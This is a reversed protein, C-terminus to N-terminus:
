IKIVLGKRNKSVSRMRLLTRLQAIIESLASFLSNFLGPSLKSPSRLTYLSSSHLDAHLLRINTPRGFSVAFSLRHSASRVM